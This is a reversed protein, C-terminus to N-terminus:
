TLRQRRFFTRSSLTARGQAVDVLKLLLFSQIGSERINGHKTLTKQM